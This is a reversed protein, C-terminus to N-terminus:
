EDVIEVDYGARRLDDVAQHAGAGSVRLVIERDDDAHLDERQLRDLLDATAGALLALHRWVVEAGPQSFARETHEAAARRALVAWPQVLQGIEGADLAAAVLPVMNQRGDMPRWPFGLSRAADGIDALGLWVGSRAPALLHRALRRPGLRGVPSVEPVQATDLLPVPRLRDIEEALFQSVEDILAAYPTGVAPGALADLAVEAWWAVHDAFFRRQAEVHRTAEDPRDNRWSAAELGVLYSYARLELGLHDPGAVRWRATRHEDFGIDDYHDAVRSAVVGGREAEDSRFVSEYPAVSRLFIREYDVGLASDALSALEPVREVFPATRPGPESLLLAGALAAFAARQDAIEALDTSM